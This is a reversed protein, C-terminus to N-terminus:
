RANSRNRSRNAGPPFGNAASHVDRGGEDAPRHRGEQQREADQQHADDRHPEQRHRRQRAHVDRGDHHEGGPRARVRLRHRGADSSRRSPSIGPTESSVLLLLVPLVEITMWNSM